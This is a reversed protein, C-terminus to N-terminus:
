RTWNKQKTHRAWFLDNLPSRRPEAPLLDAAQQEMTAPEIRATCGVVVTMNEQALFQVRGQQM